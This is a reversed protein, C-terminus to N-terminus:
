PASRAKPPRRQPLRIKRPATLQAQRRRLVTPASRRCPTDASRRRGRHFRRGSHRGLASARSRSGDGALGGLGDLLSFLVASRQVDPDSSASRCGELRARLLGCRGAGDARGEIEARSRGRQEERQRARGAKAQRSRLARSAGTAGRRAAESTPLGSRICTQARIQTPRAGQMPHRRSRASTGPAGGDRAAAEKAGRASAGARPSRRRCRTSPHSVRDGALASAAPGPSRRGPCGRSRCPQSRPLRRQSRAVTTRSLLSVM